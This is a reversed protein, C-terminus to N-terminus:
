ANPVDGIREITTYVEDLGGADRTLHHQHTFRYRGPTVEIIDQYHKQPKGGLSIFLSHDMISYWWLDTCISGRHEWDEPNLDNYDKDVPNPAIIYRDEGVQYVGPCTNGVFFHAMGLKAYYATIRQEWVVGSGSFDEHDPFLHRSDNEVVIKGSPFDFDHHYPPPGNPFPCTSPCWVKIGDTYLSYCEGCETCSRYNPFTHFRIPEPLKEKAIYAKTLAFVEENTLPCGGLSFLYLDNLRSAPTDWDGQAPRDHEWWGRTHGGFNYPLNGNGMEQQLFRECCYRRLSINPLDEKGKLGAPLEPEPQSIRELVEAPTIDSM